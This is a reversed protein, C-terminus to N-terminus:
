VGLVGCVDVGVNSLEPDYFVDHSALELMERMEDFINSRCM